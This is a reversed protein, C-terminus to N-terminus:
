KAISSRLLLLSRGGGQIFHDAKSRRKNQTAACTGKHGDTSRQINSVLADGLTTLAGWCSTQSKFFAAATATMTCIAKGPVIELARETQDGKGPTGHFLIWMGRRHDGLANMAQRAHSHKRELGICHSETLMSVFLNSFYSHVSSGWGPVYANDRDMAVLLFFLTNRVM